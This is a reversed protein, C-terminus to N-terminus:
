FEDEEGANADPDEEDPSANIVDLLSLKIVEIIPTEFIQM